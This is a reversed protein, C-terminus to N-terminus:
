SEGYIFKPLFKILGMISEILLKHFHFIFKSINSMVHFSHSQSVPLLEHPWPLYLLWDHSLDLLLPVFLDQPHIELGFLYFSVQHLTDFSLFLCYLGTMIMKLYLYVSLCLYLFFYTHCCLYFNRIMFIGPIISVPEITTITSIGSVPKVSTVTPISKIRSFIIMSVIVPFAVVSAGTLIPIRALFSIISGIVSFSTLVTMSGIVSCLM